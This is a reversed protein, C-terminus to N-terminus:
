CAGLRGGLTITFWVSQLQLDPPGCGLDDDPLWAGACLAPCCVSRCRLTIM